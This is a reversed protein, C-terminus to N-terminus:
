AKSKDKMLVFGVLLCSILLLGLTATLLPGFSKQDAEEIGVSFPIHTDLRKDKDVIAIHALYNGAGHQRFDVMGTATGTKIKQPEQYFIRTGEPEKTVEFEVSFNRLQKGEYDFVLHTEGLQPIAKCYEKNGSLAPTYATFHVRELGVRINCVDIEDVAGRHAQAAFPIGALLFFLLILRIDYNRRCHRRIGPTHHQNM